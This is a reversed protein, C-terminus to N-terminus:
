AASGACSKFSPCRIPQVPLSRSKSVVRQKKGSAQRRPITPPGLRNSTGAPFPSRRIRRETPPLPSAQLQRGSAQRRPMLPFSDSSLSRTVAQKPPDEKSETLIASDDFETLTTSTSGFSTLSDDLSFLDPDSELSEAFVLSPSSAQRRPLGPRIDSPRRKREWREQQDSDSRSDSRSCDSGNDQVQHIDLSSFSSDRVPVM